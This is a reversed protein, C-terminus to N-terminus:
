VRWELFEWINASIPFTCKERKKLAIKILQIFAYTNLSSCNDTFSIILRSIHRVTNLQQQRPAEGSIFDGSKMAFVDWASCFGSYDLYSSPKWCFCWCHM